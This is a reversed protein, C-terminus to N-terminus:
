KNSVYLANANFESCLPTDGGCDLSAQGQPAKRQMILTCAHEYNGICFITRYALTVKKCCHLASQLRAKNVKVWAGQIHPRSGM